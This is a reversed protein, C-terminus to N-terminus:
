SASNNHGNISDVGASEVECKNTQNHGDGISSGNHGEGIKRSGYYDEETVAQVGYHKVKHDLDCITQVSGVGYKKTIKWTIDVDWGDWADFIFKNPKNVGYNPGFCHLDKLRFLTLGTARVDTNLVLKNTYANEFYEVGGFKIYHSISGSIDKIMWCQPENPKNRSFFLPGACVTDLALLDELLKPNATMDCDFQFLHSFGELTAKEIEKNYIMDSWLGARRYVLEIEPHNKYYTFWEILNEMVATFTVPQM